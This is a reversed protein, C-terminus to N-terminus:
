VPRYLEPIKRDIIPHLADVLRLYNKELEKQYEHQDMAILHKNKRLADRCRNTRYSKMFDKFCLRLKNHFRFDRPDTPIDSLFVQAVELPGQ